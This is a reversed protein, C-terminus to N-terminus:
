IRATVRPVRADGVILLRQPRRLEIRQDYIPGLARPLFEVPALWRRGSRVLPSPLSVVRGNVSAMPQDASAMVTRGRYTLTVGGALADERVVVQFLTAVDDLGILEQGSVITTPVPHRGDGPDRRLTAHRRRRIRTASPEDPVYMTALKLIQELQKGIQWARGMCPM